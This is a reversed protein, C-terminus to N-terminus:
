LSLIKKQYAIIKKIGVLATEVLLKLDKQSFPEGEATAQIDIIRGSETAALNFDVAARSDEEYCLDLCLHGNVLGVSIAAALERLPNKNITKAQRMKEFADYLAVVAGNIATTRTGGDAQLVDADIWITREGLLKLDVVSRLVRGLLRQIETSRGDNRLRSSDRAKREAVSGPLMGYEASLWGGLDKRFPPVKEEVMATCVVRTDGSEVLVSGAPYKLYHRIIKLPRLELFDRGDRRKFKKSV